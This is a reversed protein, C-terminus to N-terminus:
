CPIDLNIVDKDTLGDPYLLKYIEYNKVNAIKYIKKKAFLRTSYRDVDEINYFIPHPTDGCIIQYYYGYRDKAKQLIYPLEINFIKINTEPLTIEKGAKIKESIHEVLEISDYFYQRTGRRIHIDYDM